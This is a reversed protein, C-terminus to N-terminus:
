MQVLFSVSTSGTQGDETTAELIYTALLVILVHVIQHIVMIMVCCLLGLVVYRFDTDKVLCENCGCEDPHSNM